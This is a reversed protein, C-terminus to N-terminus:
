AAYARRAVSTGNPQHIILEDVEGNARLHFEVRFGELEGIVFTIACCIACRSATPRSPMVHLLKCKIQCDNNTKPLPHRPRPATRVGLQSRSGGRAGPISVVVIVWSWFIM